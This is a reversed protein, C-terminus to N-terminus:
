RRGADGVPISEIVAVPSGAASGGVALLDDAIGPLLRHAVRPTALKGVAEWRDGADGLRLVQGDFGSAYLRGGVAFASPAFGQRKGGPLDPGNSWARTAPDYIAVSQVVKGDETLGGIAYVKGGVAGVALARRRFPPAPLDEWGADPRSLDFAMATELFDANASDGGNM